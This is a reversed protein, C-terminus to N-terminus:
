DQNESVVSDILTELDDPVTPKILYALPNLRMARDVIKRASDPRTSSASTPVPLQRKRSPMSFRSIPSNM